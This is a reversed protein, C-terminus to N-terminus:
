KAAAIAAKIQKWARKGFTTCGITRADDYVAVAHYRGIPDSKTRLPINYLTYLDTKLDRLEVYFREKFHQPLSLQTLRNKTLSLRYRKGNCIGNIIKM